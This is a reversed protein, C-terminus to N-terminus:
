CLCVRTFMPLGLCDLLLLSHYVYTFSYVLPLCLYVRTLMPLCLSVYTFVLLCLYVYTLVLLCPYVLMFLCNYVYTYVFFCHYLGNWNLQCRFYVLRLRWIVDTLNYQTRAYTHAIVLHLWTNIIHLHYENIVFEHHWWLTFPPASQDESFQSLVKWLM